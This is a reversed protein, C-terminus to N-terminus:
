QRHESVAITIMYAMGSPSPPDFGPTIGPRIGQVYPQGPSRRGAHGGARCGDRGRGRGPSGGRSRGPAGPLPEGLVPRASGRGACAWARDRRAAGCDRPTWCSRRRCAASRTRGASRRRAAPASLL